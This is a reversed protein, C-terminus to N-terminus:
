FHIYKNCAKLGGGDSAPQRVQLLGRGACDATVCDCHERRELFSYVSSCVSQMRPTSAGHLHLNTFQTAPNGFSCRNKSTDWGEGTQAAPVLQMHTSISYIYETRVACYVCETETVFVLWNISYLSVTATQESIWVFCM